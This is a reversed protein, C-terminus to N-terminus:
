TGSFKRAMEEMPGGRPGRLVFLGKRTGVLLETEEAPETDVAQLRPETREAVGVAGGSIAPLVHIRDQPRVRAELGAREGNLFLNVHPRVCGQEDVVWGTLKPYSAELRSIIERLTAGEVDLTGQGGALERLPPRLMVQPMVSSDLAGHRCRSNRSGPQAGSRARTGPAEGPASPRSGMARSRSAPPKPM